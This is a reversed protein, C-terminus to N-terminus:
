RILWKTLHQSFGNSTYLETREKVCSTDIYRIIANEHDKTFYHNKNRRKKKTKVSM